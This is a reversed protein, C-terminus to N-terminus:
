RAGGAVAHAESVHAVAQDIIEALPRTHDAHVAVVGWGCTCVLRVGPRRTNTQESVYVMVTGAGRDVIALAAALVVKMDDLDVDGSEQASVPLADWGANAMDDTPEIV